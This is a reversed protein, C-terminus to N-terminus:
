KEELNRPTKKNTKKGKGSSKGDPLKHLVTTKKTKVCAKFGLHDKRMDRCKWFTGIVGSFLIKTM